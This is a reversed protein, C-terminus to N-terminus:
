EGEMNKIEATIETGIELLREEELQPLPFDGYRAKEYGAFFEDVVLRADPLNQQLIEGYEKATLHPHFKLGRRGAEKAIRRLMARVNTLAPTARRSVTATSTTSETLGRKRHPLQLSAKIQCFMRWLQRVARQLGRYVQVALRPLGKLRELEAGLLHTLLFGLIVLFALILSVLFVFILIAVFFQWPGAGMEEPYPFGQGNQVTTKDTEEEPIPPPSPEWTWVNQLVQAIRTATIPWYDVPAVNMVLVACLLLTLIRRTWIQSLEGSVEAQAHSWLVRLRFLYAGTQLALGSLAALTGFLRLYVSDAGRVEVGTAHSIIAFLAILAGFFYLRWWFYRLPVKLDPDENALSEYEWTVTSASQDGLYDAIREMYTLQSGYGRALLWTGFVYASYIIFAEYVRGTLVYLPGLFLGLELLRVLFPTRRNLYYTAFYASELAAFLMFLLLWFPITMAPFLLGIYRSWTAVVAFSFVAALAPLLGKLKM